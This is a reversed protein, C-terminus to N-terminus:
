MNCARHFEALALKADIAGDELAIQADEVVCACNAPVLSETLSELRGVAYRATRLAVRAHRRAEKMAQLRDTMIM